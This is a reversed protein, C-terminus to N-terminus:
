RAWVGAQDRRDFARTPDRAGRPATRADSRSLRESGPHHRARSLAEDAHEVSVEWARTEDITDPLTFDELAEDGLGAGTFAPHQDDAALRADALGGEDLM